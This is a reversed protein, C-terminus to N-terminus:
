LESDMSIVKILRVKNEISVCCVTGDGSSAVAINFRHENRHFLKKEDAGIVNSWSSFLTAYDPCVTSAPLTLPQAPLLQM